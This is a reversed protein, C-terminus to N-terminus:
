SWRWRMMRSRRTSTKPKPTASLTKGSETSSTSSIWSTATSGPTSTEFHRSTGECGMDRRQSQRSWVPLSVKRCRPSLPLWLMLSTLKEASRPRLLRSLTTALSAFSPRPAGSSPLLSKDPPPLSGLWSSQGNQTESPARSSSAFSSGSAASAPILVRRLPQRAPSNFSANPSRRVSRSSRRVSRFASSFPNSPLQRRQALPLHASSFDLELTRRAFRTTPPRM